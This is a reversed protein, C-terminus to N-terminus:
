DYKKLKRSFWFDRYSLTVNFQTYSEKILSNATTGRQGVELAAQMGFGSFQTGSLEGGIGLTLGYDQLQQGSIRLYSNNYFLGAQLYYKEYLQNLYSFKKSYEGGVSIRQSNVLNYGIGNYHLDQWGQYNYDVAFTYKDKFTAAIGSTYTVPLTFYNSQFYQNDVLVTNGSKAVLSYNARLKTKTSATGGLAIKWKNNLQAKYQFGLKVYPNGVFLNKDTVVASDTYQSSLSETEDIQGFLYSTQLGVSLNKSITFSNAIYALNTSGSGQYYADTTVNTGQISKQGYFSYNVTSFPLLGFSVAWRPKIKLALAIKKVQLDTSQDNGTSNIPSGSYSVAKFRMSTEFYFFHQDLSSYSAPNSQYLYRNSSLAIGAYGMGTTRDFSSKELDGIGIISYPSTNNQAHGAVASGILGILFFLKIRM